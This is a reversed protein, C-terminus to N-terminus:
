KTFPQPASSNLLSDGYKGVEYVAFIRYKGMECGAFAGANMAAKADDFTAFLCDANTPLECAMQNCSLPSCEIMDGYTVVDYGLLRRAAPPKVAPERWETLDLPAWAGAPSGGDDREFEYAEYYFLRLGAVEVGKDAAIEYVEQATDFLWFANHRWTDIHDAFDKAVCSSVSCVREVQPAKLWDPPPPAHKLMYGAPIM